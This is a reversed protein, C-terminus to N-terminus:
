AVGEFGVDPQKPSWFGQYERPAFALHMLRVEKDVYNQAIEQVRDQM